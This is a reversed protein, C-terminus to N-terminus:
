IVKLTPIERTLGQGFRIILLALLPKSIPNNKPEKSGKSTRKAISEEEEGELGVVDETNKEIYEEEM